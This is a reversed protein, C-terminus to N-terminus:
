YWVTVVDKSPIVCATVADRLEDSVGKPLVLIDAIFGRVYDRTQESVLIIKSGNGFALVHAGYRHCPINRQCVARWIHQQAVRVTQQDGSSETGGEATPLALIVNIRKEARLVHGLVYESPTVGAAIEIRQM